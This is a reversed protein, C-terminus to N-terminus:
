ILKPMAVTTWLKGFNGKWSKAVTSLQLVASLALFLVSNAGPDAPVTGAGAIFGAVEERASFTSVRMLDVAYEVNAGAARLASCVQPQKSAAAAALPTFNCGTSCRHDVSAGHAVLVEVHANDGIWSALLLPSWGSQSSGADIDPGMDLLVRSAKYQREKVALFLPTRGLQDQKNVV